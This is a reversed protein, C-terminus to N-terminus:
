FHKQVPTFLQWDMSGVFNGERLLLNVFDSKPIDDPLVLDVEAELSSRLSRISYGYLYHQSSCFFVPIMSPREHRNWYLYCVVVYGCCNKWIGNPM